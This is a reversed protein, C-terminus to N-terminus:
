TRFLLALQIHPFQERLRALIGDRITSVDGVTRAPDVWADAVVIITRGLRNVRLDYRDLDPAAADAFTSEIQALVDKPPRATLLDRGADIAMRIPVAITLVVMVIVLTSDVYPIFWAVASGRMFIAIGFAIGVASSIAGNILWNKADM